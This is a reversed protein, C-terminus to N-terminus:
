FQNQLRFWSTRVASKIGRRITKWSKPKTQLHTLLNKIAELKATELTVDFFVFPKTEKKVMENYIELWYFYVAQNFVQKEIVEILKDYFIAVSNDKSPIEFGFERPDKGLVILTIIARYCKTCHSCNLKTNLHHYCVRFPTPIKKEEFYDCLLRMKDFRNAEQGHHIVNTNGWAIFNDIYSSGWPMTEKTSDLTSGIYVKEIGDKYTIPALLSTLSLGHQLLTWWDQTNNYILKEVKFTYFDRVNSRLFLKPNDITLPLMRNVEQIKQWQSTNDIEIDAGHITVLQIKDSDLRSYTYLADVGGSFLMASQNTNYSITEFNEVLLQSKKTIIEPYFKAFEQKIKEISLYFNEDLTKVKLTAGLFWCIPYLNAVFPINLISDPIDSLDFDYQVFLNENFYPQFKVETEQFYVVKNENLNRITKTLIINKSM